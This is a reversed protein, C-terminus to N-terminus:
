DGFEASEVLKVESLAPTFEGTKDPLPALTNPEYVVVALRYSGPPADADPLLSFRMEQVLDQDQQAIVAGASDLLRASIKLSGDTLGAATLTVALPRGVRLELPHQVSTLAVDEWGVDTPVIEPAQVVIEDIQLRELPLDTGSGPRIAAPEGTIPDVLSLILAYRGPTAEAPLLIEYPDQWIEHEPWDSPAVGAPLRTEEWLSVGAADVLQLHTQYDIVTPAVKELFLTVELTEGPFDTLDSVQHAILAFSEGLAAARADNIQTFAPPAQDRLDYVRALELGDHAVTYAPELDAFYRIVDRAPIERQWQSAYVVAYDALWFAPDGWDLARRDSTFFYSFPGNNYWSVARLTDGDPQRNLWRAAEDLGEGWGVMMVNDADAREGPLLEPLPNYYTFYYPYNRVLAWGQLLLLLALTGGAIAGLRMWVPGADPSQAENRRLRFSLWGALGVWGLGGMVTIPLMAPLIYRDFKKAGQTMGILFVLSFLLLGLLFYRREAQDLPWRRRWLWLLALAAGILSVPTSRYLIATPYFFIGPDYTVRGMFYNPLEHGQAYVTMMEFITTLVRPAETWLAPWLLVFAALAAAGYVVYGLLLSGATRSGGARRRVMEILLLLGTAPLLFVAPTKTLLALATVIGSAILYRWLRGGYLWTLFTTMALLCLTALLGDLHLLRSLAVYFPDWALLLIAVAAALEGFMRRLPFFGAVLFFAIAVTMWQRGGTLLELPSHTGDDALWEELRIDSVWGPNREAYEPFNTRWGLAGIWMVTVGPHETQFTAAPDGENLALYFNASRALWKREDPTVFEDLALFRPLWAAVFLLGVIALTRLRSSAPQAM